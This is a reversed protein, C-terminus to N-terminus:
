RGGMNYNRSTSNLMQVLERKVNSMAGMVSQSDMATININIPQGGTASSVNPIITGNTKPVFIEPRKEGVVYAMGANVDGGGERFGGFFSMFASGLLGTSNPTKGAPTSGLDGFLAFQIQAALMNAVMRDITQKVLDGLSSWKGQMIDFIGNSFMSEFAGAASRMSDELKQVQNIAYYPNVSDFQGQLNYMAAKYEAASITGDQAAKKIGDMKVVVDDIFVV